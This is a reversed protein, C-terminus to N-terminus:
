PERRPHVRRARAPGGGPGDRVFEATTDAFLETLEVIERRLAPRAQRQRLPAHAEDYNLRPFPTPLEAGLCARWVAAMAGEIISFLDDRSAFSMELDLQTHEPQRNGRLDEDRLCKAIQYYRDIGGCMLIQKFLQPSQPLAYFSGHHVRSPVVYDRAGEPTSRALLPTEIELFGEGNLYDRIAHDGQPADDARAGDHPPAPRHLPVEAADGRQGEGRGRGPVAADRRRQARQRADVVFERDGGPYDRLEKDPRPRTM